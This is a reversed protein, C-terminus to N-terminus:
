FREFYVPPYRGVRDDFSGAEPVAGEEHYELTRSPSVGFSAIPLEDWAGVVSVGKEWSMEYKPLGRITNKAPDYAVAPTQKSFYNKQRIDWFSQKQEALNSPHKAAAWTQTPLGYYSVDVVEAQGDRNWDVVDPWNLVYTPIPRKQRILKALDKPLIARLEMIDSAGMRFCGHSVYHRRLFWLDADQRINTIPGHFAVGGETLQLFPFGGFEDKWKNSWWRSEVTGGHGFPYKDEKPDSFPGATTAAIPFVFTLYGLYASGRQDSVTFRSGQHAQFLEESLARLDPAQTPDKLRLATEDGAQLTSLRGATWAQLMALVYEESAATESPPLSLYPKMFPEALTLWARLDKTKASAQLAESSPLPLFRLVPDKFAARLREWRGMMYKLYNAPLEARVWATVRLTLGMKSVVLELDEAEFRPATGVYLHRGVTAGAKNPTDKTYFPVVDSPVGWVNPAALVAFSFVKIFGRVSNLM